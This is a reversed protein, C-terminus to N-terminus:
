RDDIDSHYTMVKEDIAKAVSELGNNVCSGALLIFVGLIIAEGTLDINYIIKAKM